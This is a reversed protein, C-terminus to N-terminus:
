RWTIMQDRRDACRAYHLELLCVVVALRSRGFGRNDRRRLVQSLECPAAPSSVMIHAWSPAQSRQLEYSARDERSRRVLLPTPEIRSRTVGISKAAHALSLM